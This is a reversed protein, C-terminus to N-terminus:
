KKCKPCMWGTASPNYETGCQACIVSDPRPSIQGQYRSQGRMRPIWRTWIIVALVILALLSFLRTM